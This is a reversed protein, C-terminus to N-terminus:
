CQSIQSKLNSIQSKKIACICMGTAAIAQAGGRSLPIQKTHIYAKFRM